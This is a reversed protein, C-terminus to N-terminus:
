HLGALCILKGRQASASFPVQGFLPAGEVIVIEFTIAEGELQGKVIEFGISTGELQQKM